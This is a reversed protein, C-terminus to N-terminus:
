RESKEMDSQLRMVHDQIAMGIHIAVLALMAFALYGHAELLINYYGAGEPWIPPLSYGFFLERGLVSQRGYDSIGTWGLLPMLIIAGYLIWHIM